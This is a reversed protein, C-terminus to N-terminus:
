SEHQLEPNILFIARLLECTGSQVDRAIAVHSSSFMSAACTDWSSLYPSPPQTPAGTRAHFSHSLRKFIIDDALFEVLRPIVRHTRLLQLFQAQLSHQQESDASTAAITVQASIVHRVIVLITHVSALLGHASVYTEGRTALAECATALLMRLM